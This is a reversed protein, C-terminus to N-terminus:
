RNIKKVGARHQGNVFGQVGNWAEGSLSSRIQNAGDEIISMRKIAFERLAGPEAALSVAERERRYASAADRNTALRAVIEGCVNDLRVRESESLHFKARVDRSIAEGKVRDAAARKETWRSLDQYLYFFTYYLEADDAKPTQWKELNQGVCLGLSLVLSVITRVASQFKMAEIV